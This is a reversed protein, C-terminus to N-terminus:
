MKKLFDELVDCGLKLNPCNKEVFSDNIESQPNKFKRAEQIVKEGPYDVTAVRCALWDEPCYFDSAPLVAIRLNELLYDCMKPATDVGLKRWGRTYHHFDPFLYFAGEPKVCGLGMETFRRHMYTGTARHVETCLETYKSVSDDFTYAKMAAWQIPASVASFTESVMAMLCKMFSRMNPPVALFGLRYGGASHGKSLGGTVITGEPYHTSFGRYPRGSFDTLAYIEDSIVIIGHRKCVESIDRIEKDTYVTGTPNNPNNLILIKQRNVLLLNCAVELDEPHLKYDNERRTLITHVQKGRIHAQPGYSVWSPAPILVPGELVFLAQFILEKSGPGILVCDPQFHYHYKRKYFSCIAERLPELGLTPLYEKKDTHRSLEEQVLDAVPFPSQGFGFHFVEKGESRLKKAAQNIALTASEKLKQITTNLIPEM